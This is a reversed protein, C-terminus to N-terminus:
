RNSASATQWSVGLRAWRPAIPVFGTEVFRESSLNTAEATVTVDGFARWLRIDHLLYVTPNTVREVLRAIYTVHVNFPLHWRTEAVAQARLNDAVYRTQVPTSVALMQYLLGVRVFRLWGADVHKWGSADVGAVDVDTINSATAIGATDIAYDIMDTGRRVYVAANAAYTLATRRVGLELTQAREVRLTPNGRTSPDRYYLDTYTPVRGNSQVSAYVIDVSEQGLDLKASVDVGGTLLPSRDSFVLLGGSLAARLRHYHQVREVVATGRFRDHTGLNSSQIADSGGELLVSTSGHGSRATVGVQALYQQTRHKNTYFAPDYRKLRFEDNNWRALGRAVIDVDSTVPMELTVGGLYTTVHEWQEPFRPSYFGNAGFAKNTAGMLMRASGGAVATSARYLVSQMDVGSSPIWGAHRMAQASVQHSVNGTRASASLRGEAFSADGATASVFLSPEASPERLVINVAGDMAGAGLARAAGGKVVEIREIDSPILPISFTNHGTQVDNLRMGDIMIAAQEFTGGRISVDSQVGLPGRQRLDVGQVYALADSVARVPQVALDQAGIVAISFPALAPHLKTLGATVTIAQMTVSSTDAATSDQRAHLGVAAVMACVIALTYMM